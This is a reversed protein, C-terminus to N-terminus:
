RMVTDLASMFDSKKIQFIQLRKQLQKGNTYVIKLVDGLRESRRKAS